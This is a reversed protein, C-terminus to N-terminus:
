QFALEIYETLSFTRVKKWFVSSVSVVVVERIPWSKRFPIIAALKNATRPISSFAAEGDGLEDREETQEGALTIDFGRNQDSDIAKSRSERHKRSGFKKPRTIRGLRSTRWEYCNDQESDKCEVGDLSENSRLLSRWTNL